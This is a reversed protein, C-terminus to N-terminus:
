HTETHSLSNQSHGTRAGQVFVEFGAQAFLAEIAQKCAPRNQQALSADVQRCEPLQNGLVSQEALHRM